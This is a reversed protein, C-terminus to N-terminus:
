SINVLGIEVLVAKVDDPKVVHKMEDPKFNDKVTNLKVDNCVVVKLFMDPCVM